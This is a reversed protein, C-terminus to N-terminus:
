GIQDPFNKIPQGNIKLIFLGKLQIVERPFANLKNNSIDLGRM